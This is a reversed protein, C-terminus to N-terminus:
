EAATGILEPCGRIHEPWAPLPKTLDLSWLSGAETAGDAEFGFGELLDAVIHNKATPIYEGVLRTCGLAAASHALYSIMAEEVGRNMVRCSMLFTDLFAESGRKEVIGVNVLGQDGFRDRVRLWAVVADTSDSMRQLEAPVHRRTSINFQNTKQVLQAIRTMSQDDAQGVEAEMELSALFDELSPAERQLDKRQREVKYMEARGADETSLGLADFFGCRLLANRYQAPDIPVDVVRAGPISAAVEAREVPNDDFLVLSDVGINLEAAIEHMNVSKPQWNIRVAALDDWGILMEPHQHFAEAAVEEYNKSVVALLIGRDRLGLAARQLAKYPSGPWDDGLQIGAVGDDGIVGGWITNDLDLVLCKAPRNQLADLSRVLHRSLQPQGAAGVPSRALLAMRPDAWDRAGTAAVLGAYDWVYLDAEGALRSALELNLRTIRHTVGGPESADFPGLPLDAPVAFNAILVPKEHADRFTRAASVLRDLLEEGLADFESGGTRYIRDVADPSVDTPQFLLVLYDPDAARIPSSPDLIPQELQGFEGLVTNLRLGSRAAEVTLSPKVFTLTSGSLIAVTAPRLEAFEGSDIRRALRQYESPQPDDPVALSAFSQPESM